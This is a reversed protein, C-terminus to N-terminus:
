RIRLRHGDFQVALDVAAPGPLAAIGGFAKVFVAFL